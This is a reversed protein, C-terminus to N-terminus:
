LFILEFFGPRIVSAFEFDIRLYMPQSQCSLSYLLPADIEIVQHDM